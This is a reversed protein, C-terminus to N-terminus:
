RTMRALIVDAADDLDACVLEAAEVEEPRTVPTPVLVALGAGASNAAEIDAGIDGIVACEPLTLGLAAAAAQMLGPEPKRCHCGEDPGHPCIQWNAFPGLLQEVRANVAAVQETSLLGRAVGSQNSVVALTLGAERLRRLAKEVGPLPEVLAPDGNYPVDRVLTGDRDLLVARLPLPWPAASRSRWSGRLWHVVAVPPIAVSTALMTAVERTTRPGPMIRAWAFQGTLAMWAAAGTLALRRRGAAAATAAVVVAATSALHV